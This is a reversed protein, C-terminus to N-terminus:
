PQRQKSPPLKFVQEMLVWKEGEGAGPVPVQFEWMLEEWKQSVPSQNIEHMREFTFDDEVEMIMFMRTGFRYIEMDLVGAERILQNMEPWQNEPAHYWIYKEILAPDDVLDLARCYRKM